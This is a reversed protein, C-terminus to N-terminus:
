RPTCGPTVWLSRPKKPATREAACVVALMTLSMKTPSLIINEPWAGTVPDCPRATVAMVGVGSPSPLVVVM